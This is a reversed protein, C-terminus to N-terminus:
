AAVSGEIVPGAELQQLADAVIAPADPHDRAGLRTLMTDLVPAWQAATQRALDLLHESIKCRIAIEAYRTARDTARQRALLWVHLQPSEERRETIPYSPDEAGKEMKLPRTTEVVVPGMIEERRLEAIRQSFYAVEGWAIRLSGLIAEHPDVPVPFGLLLAEAQAAEAGHKALSGPTLGGHLKCRGRGPTPTGWGAAQGCTGRPTRAGCKAKPDGAAM